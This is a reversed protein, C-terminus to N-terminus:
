IKSIIFSSLINILIKLEEQKCKILIAGRYDGDKIIKKLYYGEIFNEGLKANIIKGDEVKLFNANHKKGNFNRLSKTTSVVKDEDLVIVEVGLPLCNLIETAVDKLNHLVSYKKLKIVDEEVNMELLTGEVINMFKRMEMPLVIRGLQDVRRIIGSTRM